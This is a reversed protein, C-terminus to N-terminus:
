GLSADRYTTSGNRKNGAANNHSLQPNLEDLSM